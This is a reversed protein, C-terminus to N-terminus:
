ARRWLVVVTWGTRRARPSYVSSAAWFSVSCGEKESRRWGVCHWPKSESTRPMKARDRQTLKGITSGSTSLTSCLAGNSGREFRSPVGPSGVTSPQLRDARDPCQTRPCRVVETLWVSSYTRARDQESHSHCTCTFGSFKVKKKRWYSINFSSLSSSLSLWHSTTLWAKLVNRFLYTM